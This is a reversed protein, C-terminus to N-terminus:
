KVEEMVPVSSLFGDEHFKETLRYLIVMTTFIVVFICISRFFGDRM